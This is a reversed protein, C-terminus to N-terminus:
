KLKFQFTVEGSNINMEKNDCLIKLTNDENVDLIKVLKKEDNLLIYAEKDKLYNHEKFFELYKKDDIHKLEKKIQHYVKLKVKLISIKKNKLLYYSTAKDKLEDSFEKTNLNIGIGVVLCELENENSISEMLIGCIKRDNVYVDNPWKIMVSLLKLKMLVKSIAVGSILSISSFDKILKRDKILFSFMLNENKNSQWTRKMRGHGQSQYDASVFTLNKLTKYNNKLYTNTSDISNFHIYKKSYANLRNSILIAVVIKLLDFPIYPIVFVMMLKNFDYGRDSLINLTFAGYSIGIIYLAVLSIIFSIITQMLNKAKLLHIIIIVVYFGVVFGFTPSIAYYIGGQFNAFVPIGLLGMLIYLTLIVLGNKLSTTNAIVFVVLLQLTFKVDGVPISIYSGVILLALYLASISIDKIVKKNM